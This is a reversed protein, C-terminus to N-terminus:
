SKGNQHNANVGCFILTQTAANYEEKFKKTVLLGNEVHHHLFKVGYSDCIREFELKYDITDQTDNKSM